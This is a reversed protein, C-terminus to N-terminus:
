DHDTVVRDQDTLGSLIEVMKTGDIEVRSGPVVTRHVVSGDARAVPVFDLGMRTILSAAPVL